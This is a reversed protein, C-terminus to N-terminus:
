SVRRQETKRALLRGPPPIQAAVANGNVRQGTPCKRSPYRSETIERRLKQRDAEDVSFYTLTRRYGGGTYADLMERWRSSLESRCGRGLFVAPNPRHGNERFWATGARKCASRRGRGM